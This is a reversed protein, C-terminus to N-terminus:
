KSQPCVGRRQTSRSFMLENMFRLWSRVPFGCPNPDLEEACHLNSCFGSVFFIRKKCWLLVFDTVKIVFLINGSSFCVYECVCTSSFSLYVLSHAHTCMSVGSFCSCFVFCFLVLFSYPILSVPVFVFLSLCLSLCLSICQSVFLCLQIWVCGLERCCM